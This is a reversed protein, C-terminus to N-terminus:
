KSLMWRRFVAGMVTPTGAYNRIMLPGGEGNPGTPCQWGGGANWTWGVVGFLRGKSAEGDILSLVHSTYAGTGSDCHREGLEGLIVPMRQAIPELQGTFMADVGSGEVFDYIHGSAILQHQGDSPLHTLLQTLDANYDLGGLVIPQTAGASRISNVLTQSGAALFRPQGPYISDLTCGHLWCNWQGAPNPHPNNWSAMAVETVPDFVVGHDSRLSSALQHWLTPMHGADPMYEISTAKQTGPADVEVVPMAYLGNRRLLGIYSLVAQRYGAANGDAPLGNIGLWCDENITVRVVNIKWSLMANISAQDTPGDAVGTSDYVCRSEFVARNTGRLQVANGAGDVLRGNVVALTPAGGLGANVVRVRQDVHDAILVSGDASVTVDFPTNLKANRAPGGDGCPTTAVACPTDATGALTRIVGGSVVRVLHSFTDAIVISGNPAVAVSSPSDLNAQNASIGDGFSGAVGNGAITTITGAASVTRVRNDGSDSIVFGGGPLVAVGNPASLAAKTAPGGDGCASQPDACAVGTGAVTTIIGTASVKRVKQGQDETILFGGDPTPVARDPASLRAAQARGGDGCPGTPNACATGTGAVTTILGSASVKRIRNNSRDAILFGGDTTPSVGTPQNLHASTAPGGDGGFSGGSAIGAVTRITGDPAVRRIVNNGEDAILISGDAARVARIPFSLAAKVALGNDGAYGDQGNGAVTRIVPAAAAVATATTVTALASLSAAVSMAGLVM